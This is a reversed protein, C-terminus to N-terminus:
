AGNMGIKEAANTRLLLRKKSIFFEL